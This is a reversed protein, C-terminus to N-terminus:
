DRRKRNERRIMWIRSPRPLGAWQNVWVSDISHDDYLASVPLWFNGVYLFELFTRGHFDNLIPFSSFLLFVVFDM